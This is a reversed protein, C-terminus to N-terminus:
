VGGLVFSGLRNQEFWLHICARRFHVRGEGNEGERGNDRFDARFNSPLLCHATRPPLRPSASRYLHIVTTASKAWTKNKESHGPEKLRKASCEWFPSLVSPILTSVSKSNSNLQGLITPTDYRAKAIRNTHTDGLCHIRYDPQVKLKPGSDVLLKGFRFEIRKKRSNFQIQMM